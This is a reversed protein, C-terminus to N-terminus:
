NPKEAKNGNGFHIVAQAAMLASQVITLLDADALIAKTLLYTLASTNGIVGCMQDETTGILTITAYEKDGLLQFFEQFKAEDAKDLSERRFGAEKKFEDFTKLVEELPQM